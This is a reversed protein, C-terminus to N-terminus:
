GGGLRKPNTIALRAANIAKVAAFAADRRPGPTDFVGAEIDAALRREFAEPTVPADDAYVAAAEGPPSSADSAGFEREATALANAIMLAAYRKEAPLAPLIETRFTELATALLDLADPKLRM